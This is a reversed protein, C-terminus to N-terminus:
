NMSGDDAGRPLAGGYNDDTQWENYGSPKRIGESLSLAVAHDLEEQEKTRPRDDPTRAPAQVVMNEEGLFHPNYGGGGGAGGRRSNSSTKFLKALWKMLRSRRETYSSVFDGEKGYFCLHLPSLSPQCKLSSSSSGHLYFPLFIDIFVVRLSSFIPPSLPLLLSLLM